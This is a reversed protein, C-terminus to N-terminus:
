RIIAKLRAGLQPLDQPGIYEIDLTEMRRRLHKPVAKASSAVLIPHNFFGGAMEALAELEFLHYKLQNADSGSKCSLYFFRLNHVVAIDIENMEQEPADKWMLSVNTAYSDFGAKKVTEFVLDELWEGEVYRRARDDKFTIELERSGARGATLVGARMARQLFEAAVTSRQKGSVAFRFSKKRHGDRVEYRLKSLFPDLEAIHRGMFAAVSPLSLRASAPRTSAIHGNARLYTLVDIHTDLPEPATTDPYLSLLRQNQTDTYLCRVKAASFARFAALSMVKTGGTLNAVLHSRGYREVINRCATLITAPEYADVYVPPECAIKHTRLTSQLVKRSDDEQKTAIFVVREPKAQLIHLVNPM